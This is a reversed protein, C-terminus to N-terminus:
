GVADCQREELLTSAHYTQSHFTQQRERKGSKYYLMLCETLLTAM